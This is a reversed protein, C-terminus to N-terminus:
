KGNHPWECPLESRTWSGYLRKVFEVLDAIGAPKVCYADAGLERARDIDARYISNSFMVVPVLRRETRKFAELFELGSMRPMRIDALILDPPASTSKLWDLAREGDIAVEIKIPVSATKVARQFFFRDNEDDDIHLLYLPKEVNTGNPVDRIM